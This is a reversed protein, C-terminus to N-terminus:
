VLQYLHDCTRVRSIALWLYTNIKKQTFINGTKIVVMELANSHTQWQYVCLALKYIRKIWVFLSFFCTVLIPTKIHPVSHTILLSVNTAVLRAHYSGRWRRLISYIQIFAHSIITTTTMSPSPNLHASECTMNFQTAIGEGPWETQAVIVVVFFIAESKPCVISCFAFM